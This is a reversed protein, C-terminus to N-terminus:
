RAGGPAPATGRPQPPKRVMIVDTIDPAVVGGIIRDISSVKVSDKNVMTQIQTASTPRGDRLVGTAKIVWENDGTRNWMGEGHGGESNFLWSKIQGSQPDWGIFM